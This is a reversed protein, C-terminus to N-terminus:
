SGFLNGFDFGGPKFGGGMGYLGLANIGLGMAQQLFSPDKSQQTVSGAGINPTLGKVISNYFDLQQYPFQEQKMFDDYALDLSAQNMKQEADGVSGQLAMKDSFLQQDTKALSEMASARNFEGLMGLKDAELGLKSMLSDAKLKRDADKSFINAAQGYGKYYLDAEANALRDLYSQQGVATQAAERSSGFAGRGVANAMDKAKQQAMNKDTQRRMKDVVLDEYPNMYQDILRNGDADTDLFSQATTEQPTFEYDKLVKNGSADTTYFSDKLAKIGADQGDYNMISDMITKQNDTFGAIRQNGYPTYSDENYLDQGQKLVDELYTKMWDPYDTITTQTAM